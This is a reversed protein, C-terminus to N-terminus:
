LAAQEANHASIDLLLWEMDAAAEMHELMIDGVVVVVVVPALREPHETFLIPEPAVAVLVATELLELVQAVVAAATITETLGSTDPAAQAVRAQVEPLVIAVVVVVVKFVRHLVALTVKAQQVQVQPDLPAQLIQPIVEKAAAPDVATQIIKYEVAM